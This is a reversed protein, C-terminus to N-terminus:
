RRRKNYRKVGLNYIATDIDNVKDSAYRKISDIRGYVSHKYKNNAIDYSKQARDYAAKAFDIDSQNRSTNRITDLDRQRGDLYKKKAIADEKAYGGLKDYIDDKLKRYSKKIKGYYYRWKGNIWEKFKYKHESHMIIGSKLEWEEFEDYRLGYREDYGSRM